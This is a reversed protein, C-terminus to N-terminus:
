GREGYIIHPNSFQAWMVATDPQLVITSMYEKDLSLELAYRITAVVFNEAQKPSHPNILTHQTVEPINPMEVPTRRIELTLNDM